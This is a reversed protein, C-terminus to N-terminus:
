RGARKRRRRTVLPWAFLAAWAVPQQGHRWLLRSLLTWLSVLLEPISAM